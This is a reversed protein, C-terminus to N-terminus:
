EVIYPQEIRFIRTPDHPEIATIVANVIIIDFELFSAGCSPCAHTTGQAVVRRRLAWEQGDGLRIQDGVRYRYNWLDGFFFQVDMERQSGCRPCDVIATVTNFLGM